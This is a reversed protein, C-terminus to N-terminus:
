FIKEDLPLALDAIEPFEEEIVKFTALLEILSLKPKVPDIILRTGEKRVTVETGEFEFERPIRIAQNRGNRFLSATREQLM